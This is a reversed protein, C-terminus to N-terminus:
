YEDWHSMMPYLNPFLLCVLEQSKGSCQMGDQRIIEDPEDSGILFRSLAAGAHLTNASSSGVELTIKGRDFRLLASQEGADLLLSGTWGAFQSKTLRKELLPILKLLTSPLNIIKVRWGSVEFFRNEEICNGLRLHQLLSHQHPLTFCTIKEYEGKQFLDALVALAQQPNGVAELCVLTKEEEESPAARVYGTLVGADDRWGYTSIDEPHKNYFTPRIATGTFSAYAQNYLVDMEPVEPLSLSQYAPVPVDVPFDELKFRYTVYNWARAYGMKVYHRGRLISLDYGQEKMAAFSAVAAQHMLNQKRYDPHTVVAGIGGVKLQIDEMRMQYGWVGWHHVLQDGDFVLRSVQWDYHSNGIYNDCFADVYQGQAFQDATLQGMQRLHLTENPVVLKITSM